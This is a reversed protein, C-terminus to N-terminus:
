EVSYEIEWHEFWDGIAMIDKRSLSRNKANETHQIFKAEDGLFYYAAAVYIYGSNSGGPESWSRPMAVYEELVPIARLYEDRDLYLKGLSLRVGASSGPMNIVQQFLEEAIDINGHNWESIAEVELAAVEDLERLEQLLSQGEKKDGGMLGPMDLLFATYAKKIKINSPDLEHANALEKKVARALFPQRFVSAEWGLAEYAKALAFRYEANEPVLEVSIKLADEANQAERLKLLSLGFYYQFEADLKNEAAVEKFLSHAELYEANNFLEIGKHLNENGLVLPTYAVIGLMTMLVAVEIHLKKSLSIM